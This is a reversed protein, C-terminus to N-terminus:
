RYHHTTAHSEGANTKTILNNVPLKLEFCTGTAFRSARWQISAGILHARESINACGHGTPKMDTPYGVGNDEVTVILQQACCRLCVELRNCKAHKLVNNVAETVIRFLSLKSDIPLLDEIKQDFEFHYDPFGSIANHRDLFSQMASELGLTELVQPHLDDITRRLNNIVNDVDARLMSKQEAETSPTNLSDLRRNITTLDALVGDHMDMAIRRRENEAGRFINEISVFQLLRKTMNALCIELDDLEDRVIVPKPMPVQDNVCVTRARQSLRNLRRRTVTLGWLALATASTICFMLGALLATTMRSSISVLQRHNDIFSTRRQAVFIKFQYELAPLLDVLSNMISTPDVREPERLWHEISEIQQRLEAPLQELLMADLLSDSLIATQELYNFFHEHERIDQANALERTVSKLRNTSAIAIQIRDTLIEWQRTIENEKNIKSLEILTYGVLCALLVVIVFPTLIFQYNFPLKM